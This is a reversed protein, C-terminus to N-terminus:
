TPLPADSLNRRGIKAVTSKITPAFNNSHRDVKLGSSSGKQPDTKGEFTDVFAKAAASLGHQEDVEVIGDIVGLFNRWSAAVAEGFGKPGLEKLTAVAHDPAFFLIPKPGTLEAGGGSIGRADVHTAGVLCSYKLAEGLVDHISRLLGSNGAFDVSVTAVKHLSGVDDYSLVEDYLGTANVFAVNGASTLGIRKIQPSSIQACSALGMSTKSSASTMVLAQAGFWNERRFMDEILFGTKFLPAFIMRENERAQDHEPDANIRSYQNYIPSMPQRHAAMDTFGGASVKGPLIDLHTGMPLYGYVREGAAIDPHNSAEVVAHGWMPVVGHGDSAPFFNWYGFMDGIVAYTINNATVSFSEIKLRVEGEGLAPLTGEHLKTEHLNSRNVWITAAM